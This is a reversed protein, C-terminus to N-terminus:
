TTDVNIQCNNNPCEDKVFGKYDENKEKIIRYIIIGFISLIAVVLIIIVLIKNTYNQKM